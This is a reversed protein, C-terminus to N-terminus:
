RRYHLLQIKLFKKRKINYDMFNDKTGAQNPEIVVNIFGNKKWTHPFGIWHGFEHTTQEEASEGLSSVQYKVQVGGQDGVWHFGGLYTNAQADHKQLNTIYFYNFVSSFGLPQKRGFKELNLSDLIQENTLTNVDTLKLKKSKCHVSDVNLDLFLQQM